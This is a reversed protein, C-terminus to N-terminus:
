AMPFAPNPRPDYGFLIQVLTRQELPVLPNKADDPYAMFARAVLGHRAAALGLCQALAGAALYADLLARAGARDDIRRADVAITAVLGSNDRCVDRAFRLRAASAPVPTTRGLDADLAYLGVPGHETPRWVLTVALPPRDATPWAADRALRRTDALVNQLLEATFDATWRVIGQGLGSSRRWSADFLPFADDCAPTAPDASAAADVACRAADNGSPGALRVVERMLPHRDAADHHPHPRITTLRRSALESTASAAGEGTLRFCLMPVESWHALGLTARLADHDHGADIRLGWGLAGAVLRLQTQLMGAELTVLCLALDGYGGVCRGVNGVAVMSLADASAPLAEDSLARTEVLAMDRPSCHLVRAGDRTRALLLLDVPYLAGPSPVARHQGSGNLPEWRLPWVTHRLLWALKDSAPREAAPMAGGVVTEPLDYAIADCTGFVVGNEFRPHLRTREMEPALGPTAAGGRRLGEWRAGRLESRRDTTAVIYDQVPTHPKM